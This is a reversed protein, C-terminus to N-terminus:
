PSKGGLRSSVFAVIAAVAKIVIKPGAAGAAMFGAVSQFFTTDGFGTAGHFYHIGFILFAASLPAGLVAYAVMVRDVRPLDASAVHADTAIQRAVQGAIFQYCFAGFCAFLIGWVFEQMSAGPPMFQGLAFTTATTTTIATIAAATGSAPEAM